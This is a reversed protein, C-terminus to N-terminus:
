ITGIYLTTRYPAARVATSVRLDPLSKEILRIEKDLTLM